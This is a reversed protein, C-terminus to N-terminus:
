DLAFLVFYRCALAHIYVAEGLVGSGADREVLHQENVVISGNRDTLRSYGSGRDAGFHQGMNFTVFDDNEFLFATFAIAHFVSVTLLVRFDLDLSDVGSEDDGVGYVEGLTM